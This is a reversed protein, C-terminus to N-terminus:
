VIAADAGAGGGSGGSSGGEGRAGGKAERPVGHRAPRDDAGHRGRPLDSRAAGRGCPHRPAGARLPRFTSRLEFEMHRVAKLTAWVPIVNHVTYIHLTCM